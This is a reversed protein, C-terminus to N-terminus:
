EKKRGLYYLWDCLQRMIERGTLKVLVVDIARSGFGYNHLVRYNIFTILTVYVATAAVLSLIYDLVSINVGTQQQPELSEQERALKQISIGADKLPPAISVDLVLTVRIASGAPLDSLMKFGPGVGPVDQRAIAILGGSPVNLQCECLIDIVAKDPLPRGASDIFLFQADSRLNRNSYNSIQFQAARLGNYDKGKFTVRSVDYTLDNLVQNQGVFATVYTPESYKILINGASLLVAIYYGVAGSFIAGVIYLFITSLPRSKSASHNQQM